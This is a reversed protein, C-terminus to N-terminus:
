ISFFVGLASQIIALYGCRVSVHLTLDGRSPYNDWDHSPFRYSDDSKLPGPAYGEQWM